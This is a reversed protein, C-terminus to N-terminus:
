VGAQLLARMRQPADASAWRLYSQAGAGFEFANTGSVADITNRGPASHAFLDGDGFAAYYAGIAGWSPRGPIGAWAFLAAVCDTARDGTPGTVVDGGLDSWVIPTPWGNAVIAADRAALHNVAFNYENGVPYGGGVAVLRCVKARILDQDSALLNALNHLFGVSVITVSGDPQAALAKRYVDLVDAAHDQYPTGGWGPPWNNAFYLAAGGDSRIATEGKAVGVPVDTVGRSLLVSSIGAGGPPGAMSNGVAVLRVLGKTHWRAAQAVDLVDDFDNAFDTDLLIRVPDGPPVPASAPAPAPAPAPTVSGDAAVDVTIPPITITLRMIM